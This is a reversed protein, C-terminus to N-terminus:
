VQSRTVSRDLCCPPRFKMGMVQPERLMARKSSLHVVFEDHRQAAAVVTLDMAATVFGSPPLLGADIRGDGGARQPQFSM